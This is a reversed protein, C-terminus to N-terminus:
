EHGIYKTDLITMTWSHLKFALSKPNTHKLVRTVKQYESIKAKKKKCINKSSNGRMPQALM